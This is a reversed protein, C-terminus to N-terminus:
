TRLEHAADGTFRRQQEFARQQRDLLTNFALALDALEDRAKSVPLRAPSHADTVSRIQESMDSVPQLARRCVWRGAAGAVLWTASPLACVVLLLRHLDANLPVASRAVVVTIDDFEDVDRNGGNPAPAVLRKHLVRWRDEAFISAGDRGAAAGSAIAKSQEVLDPRANRSKDVVRSGDGIVAWQIEDPGQTAGVAITHELPQWSVDEAEVEAAAVLSTLALLLEQEFQQVLRARVFAYFAASYVVLIIALAVLFFLSVRNLLKM